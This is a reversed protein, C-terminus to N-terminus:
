RVQNNKGKKGGGGGTSSEGCPLTLKAERCLYYFYIFVDQVNV